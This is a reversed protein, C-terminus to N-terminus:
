VPEEYAQEIVARAGDALQNRTRGQVQVPDLFRLDCSSAPQGLLRLFNMVFSENALFKMAHDRQGGRLYRIMVPQVACDAEIATKFLRAHFVEIHDGQKIGGEPFIAVRRGEKLRATMANAVNSASDHSGRQHFVTDSKRALYGVFPWNAVEAKSVFGMAAASHLVLIDLWSIHNSVVLVPGPQVLGRVQARVGFSRCVMRTWWNLMLEDLNREGASISAGLRTQCVLTPVTGFVTLLILMSGRAVLRLPTWADTWM